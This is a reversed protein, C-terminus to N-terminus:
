KQERLNTMERNGNKYWYWCEISKTGKPPFTMIANGASDTTVPANIKNILDIPLEADYIKFKLMTLNKEKYKDVYATVLASATTTDLSKMYISFDQSNNELNYEEKLIKNEPMPPTKQGCSSLAIGLLILIITTYIKQM